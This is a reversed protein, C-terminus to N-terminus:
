VYRSLQTKIPLLIDDRHHPYHAYRLTPIRRKM